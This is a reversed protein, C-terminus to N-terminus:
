KNRIGKHELRKVYFNYQRFMISLYPLLNDKGFYKIILLCTRYISLHNSQFDEKARKCYERLFQKKIKQLTFCHTQVKSLQLFDLLKKDGIEGMLKDLYKYIDFNVYLREDDCAVDQGPRELRYYYLFEPISVVSKAKAFTEIKFPLDDFRRLNEQFNIHNERLFDARYIGRWIAVRCYMILKQIALRDTTGNCYPEYLADDVIRETTGSNEYYANYGAYCIDYAGSLARSFLRQFMDEDVFDDPDILSIYTGQACEVGKKRASACGGNEKDILKIRSDKKQYELIIDRSNDPSGDNVFLFEVYPAKWATVSTICQDLYKAVNYVPFVISLEIDNCPNKTWNVVEVRGSVGICELHIHNSVTRFTEWLNFYPVFDQWLKGILYIPSLSKTSLIAPRKVNSDFIVADIKDNINEACIADVYPMYVMEPLAFKKLRSEKDLILQIGKIRNPSTSAVYIKHLHKYNRCMSVILDRTSNHEALILINHIDEKYDLYKLLTIM